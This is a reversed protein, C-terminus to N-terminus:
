IDTFSAVVPAHDSPKPVRRKRMWMDVYIEQCRKHMSETALIYDIRMGEDRWVAGGMYDWWTFGHEKSHCSRFLDILGVALFREFAGREDEMFGISEELLEPAWVDIAERAVNFDGVVLCQETTELIKKTYEALHAFFSLKYQYKEGDVDGHPAYVNCITVGKITTQIFRKQEDWFPDGFGKQVEEFGLRSCIAVGNYAKQGFVQCEYGLNAFDDFPFKHEECKIEQM